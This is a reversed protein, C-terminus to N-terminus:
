LSEWRCQSDDVDGSKVLDVMISVINPDFQKKSYRELEKLAEPGTSAQRYVRGETMTAYSDAVSIIRAEVPIQEGILGVPYGSGDYKEHHSKVIPILGKLRASPKMIVAGFTPHRKMIMWEKESLQSPKTLVSKPVVIKGIDHLKSALEIQNLKEKGFGLKGAIKSAWFGTKVAHNKSYENCHDISHALKLLTILYGDELSPDALKRHIALSAGSEKFSCGAYDFLTSQGGEPFGGDDLAVFGTIFNSDDIELPILINDAGGKRWAASRRNAQNSKIPLM